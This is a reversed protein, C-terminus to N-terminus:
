AGGAGARRAVGRTVGARAGGGGAMLSEGVSNGPAPEALLTEPFSEGAIDARQWGFREAAGPSWTTGKGAVDITFWRGELLWGTVEASTPREVPPPGSQVTEVASM